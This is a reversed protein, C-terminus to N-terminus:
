YLSRVSWAYGGQHYTRTEYFGAQSTYGFDLGCLCSNIEDTTEWNSNTM